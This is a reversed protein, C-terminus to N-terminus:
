AVEKNAGLLVVVGNSALAEIEEARKEIERLRERDGKSLHSPLREIAAPTVAYSIAMDPNVLKGETLHPSGKFLGIEKLHVDTESLHKVPGAPIKLPEHAVRRGSWDLLNAIGCQGRIVDTLRQRDVTLGDQRM